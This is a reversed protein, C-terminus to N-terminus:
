EYSDSKVTVIILLWEKMRKTNSCSDAAYAGPNSKRTYDIIWCNGHCGGQGLLLLWTWVKIAVAVGNKVESIRAHTGQNDQGKTDALLLHCPCILGFVCFLGSTVFSDCPTRVFWILLYSILISVNNQIRDGYHRTHVRLALIHDLFHANRNVWLRLYLLVLNCLM